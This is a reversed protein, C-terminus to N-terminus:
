PIRLRHMQDKLWTSGVQLETFMRRLSWGQGVRRVRLYEEIDAFGLEALRAQRKAAWCATQRQIARYPRRAAPQRPLGHQDLRDRVTGPHVGLESAISTTPWRRTVARDALYPRLSAFGLEAARTTLQQDTTARRRHAATVRRPSPAIDAMDLLRRVVTTTTALESALQAPSAQQRCRAQLYSALDSYGQEHAHDQLRRQQSELVTFGGRLSLGRPTPAAPPTICASPTGPAVGSRSIGTSSTVQPSPGMLLPPFALRM